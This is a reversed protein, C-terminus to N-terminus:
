SATIVISYGQLDRTDQSYQPSEAWWYWTGHPRWGFFDFLPADNYGQIRLDLHYNAGAAANEPIRVQFTQLQREGSRIEKFTWPGISGLSIPSPLAEIRLDYILVTPTFDISLTVIQGRKVTVDSITYGINWATYTLTFTKGNDARASPLTFTLCVLVVLLTGFTLRKMVGRM